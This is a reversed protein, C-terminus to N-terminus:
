LILATDVVQLLLMEQRVALVAPVPHHSPVSVEMSGHAHQLRLPLYRNRICAEIKTTNDCVACPGTCRVVGRTRLPPVSSRGFKHQRWTAPLTLTSPGKSTPLKSATM